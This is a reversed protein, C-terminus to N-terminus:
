VRPLDTVPGTPVPNVLRWNSGSGDNWARLWLTGDDCLAYLESDTADASLTAAIQIVKRVPEPRDSEHATM